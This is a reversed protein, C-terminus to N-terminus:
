HKQRYEESRNASKKSAGAAWLPLLICSETEARLNFNLHFHTKMTFVVCVYASVSNDSNMMDNVNKMTVNASYVKKERLQMSFNMM